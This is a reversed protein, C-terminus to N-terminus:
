KPGPAEDPWTVVGSARLAEAEAETYGLAALIARTHEGIRPSPGAITQSAASLRQTFGIDEVAGFAPDRYRLARAIRAEDASAGLAAPGDLCVVEAPVGAGELAAQWAAAPRTAFLTALEAELAPAHTTARWDFDPHDALFAFAPLATLAQWHRGRHVALCLWGEATAYVGQLPAFRRQDPDLTPAARTGGEAYAYADSNCYLATAQLPVELALAQGAVRRHRLALLLAIASMIGTGYDMNGPGAIPEGGAGASRVGVGAFMSCIPEQAPRRMWRGQAAYAPIQLQVANPNLARVQEQGVGARAAADSRMNHVVVDAGRLLADRIAGGEPAKMDVAIDRKGRNAFIVMSPTRRGRDGSPLEVKVVSAGLAGLFFSAYPGALFMGFDAVRVGELIRPGQGTAGVPPTAPPLPWPEARRADTTPRAERIRVAPAPQLTARGDEPDGPRALGLEAAMPLLLGEGPPCLPGLPVELAFARALWEESTRELMRARFVDHLADWAEADYSERYLHQLEAMKLAGEFTGAVSTHIFIMRGDKCRMAGSLMRGRAGNGMALAKGDFRPWVMGVMALAGDFLSTDVGQGRGSDERQYLAAAAGLAGLLAATVSPMSFGLAHPGPSRGGQSAMLGRRATVLTEYSARDREESALGYGTIAVHILRPHAAALTEAALGFRELQAPSLATVFLDADRLAAELAARGGDTRLDLTAREKGLHLAHAGPVPLAEVEAPPDIRLVRAGLDALILGCFAAALGGGLEVVRIGDLLIGPTAAGASDNAMSMERAGTARMAVGRAVIRLGALPTL